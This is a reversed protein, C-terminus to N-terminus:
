AAQWSSLWCSSSTKHTAKLLWWSMHSHAGVRHVWHADNIHDARPPRLFRGPWQTLFGHQNNTFVMPTAPNWDTQNQGTSIFALLLTASRFCGAVTTAMLLLSTEAAVLCDRLQQHGTLINAQAVACGRQCHHYGSNTITILEGAASAAQPHQLQWPV